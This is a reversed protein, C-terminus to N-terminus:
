GISQELVRLYNTGLMKKISSEAYGRQLLGATINHFQHVGEIDKPYRMDSLYGVNASQLKDSIHDQMYDVFDGGIAVHDEGALRVLYDAHDLLRDLSPHHEDIFGPYCCLGVLGGTRAIGEIAEDTLNRRHSCLARANSHSAIIPREALELVQKVGAPALHSVDVLMGLRQMEKVASVGFRTLSGGGDEEAIGDGLGNRFNWTLVVSRVGLRHLVRLTGLSEGICAGGEVGLTAAIRGAELALRVDTMNDTLAIESTERIDEDLADFMDVFLRLAADSQLGGVTSDINVALTTLSVGGIRLPPVHLRSFVDSEGALRRRLVDTPIDSHIDAVVNSAHLRRAATLHYEQRM